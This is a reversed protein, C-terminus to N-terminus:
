SKAVTTEVTDAEESGALHTTIARLNRVDSCIPEAFEEAHSDTVPPDPHGAGILAREV